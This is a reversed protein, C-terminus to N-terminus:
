LSSLMNGSRGAACRLLGEVKLAMSGPIIASLDLRTWMVAPALADRWARCVEICRLRSETPVFLLVRCLLFPPLSASFCYGAGSLRQHDVIERSAACFGGVSALAGGLTAIVVDVDPVEDGGAGDAEGEGDEPKKEACRAEEKEKKKREKKGQEKEGESAATM